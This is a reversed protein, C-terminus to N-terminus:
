DREVISSVEASKVEHVLVTKRCIEQAIKQADDKDNLILEVKVYIDVRRM